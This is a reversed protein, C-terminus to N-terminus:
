ETETTIGAPAAALAAVRELWDAVANRWDAASGPVAHHPTGERLEEAADAFGYTSHPTLAALRARAADLEANLHAVTLDHMQAADIIANTMFRIHREQPGVTSENKNMVDGGTRDKLRDDL